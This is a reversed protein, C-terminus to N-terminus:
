NQIEEIHRSKLTYIKNVNKITSIRHTIIILTLQDSLSSINEIIKKETEIDLASTAEDLILLSPERFLERAIIIRQKQGGSLTVGRDGVETKYKKPLSNIYDSINALKSAKYIKEKTQPDDINIDESICINKEITDDFILMDQSVYGIKSRFLNKNINEASTNGIKIQGSTPKHMLLILDLLTSKGSGSAGIIATSTFPKIEININELVKGNHSNYYFSVKDFVISQKTLDPLTTGTKLDKELNSNKIDDDILRISGIRELTNQFSGQVGLIANLGRHFLLISVLLTSLSEGFIVMQLFLISLILLVVIPEHVSTNLGALIGTKINIKSLSEISKYTPKKKALLQNTALLYKFSQFIQIFSKLLIGGEKAADTSLLKVHQNIKSFIVFIFFGIAITMVGFKWAILIGLSLYVISNVGQFCFQIFHQFADVSRNVQEGVLNVLDGTNRNYYNKLSINFVRDAIEKRLREQLKGKLVANYALAFFMLFGKLFFLCGIIILIKTMSQEPNIFILVEKLLNTLAVDRESNRELLGLQGASSSIELLPLAMLIGLGESLGAFAVLLIALFIKKGVYKKFLVFYSFTQFIPNKDLFM